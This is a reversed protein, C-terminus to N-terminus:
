PQKGPNASDPVHGSSNTMPLPEALGSEFKVWVPLHVANGNPHVRITMAKGPFKMWSNQRLVQLRPIIQYSQIGLAYLRDLATRAYPRPLDTDTARDASTGGMWDTQPNSEGELPSHHQGSSEEASLDPPPQVEENDDPDSDAEVEIITEAEAEAKAKEEEAKQQKYRSVGDLIWRMEGFVLGDLDADMAPDPKGTYIYSTAYLPVGHAQFFRLQPVILRAQATTAALFIFDLDENRRPSFKLNLGSQAEILRHRIVSRDIGLFKRVVKAHNSVDQGFSSNKLVQGGLSQWHTIFANAVRSGWEGESRLVTANRHGTAYAKDAVQRAENEPSLSLGYLNDSARGPPIDALLLTDTEPNRSALLSAVTKRGLPGVIFDAGGAEAAQYYFSALSPDAGIDYLTLEPKPYSGDRNHAETFGDYFARAAKGDSSALPLLLAIQRRVQPRNVTYSGILEASAPHNPWARRWDQLQAEPQVETALVELLALWGALNPDTSDELLLSRHLSDLSELIQLLTKGAELRTKGTSTWDLKLLTEVAAEPDGQALQMKALLIQPESEERVGALGTEWEQTDDDDVTVITEEDPLGHSLATPEPEPEAIAEEEEEEKIDTEEQTTDAPQAVEQNPTSTQPLTEPLLTCNALLVCTLGVALNPSSLGSQGPMWGIKPFLKSLSQYLSVMSIRQM